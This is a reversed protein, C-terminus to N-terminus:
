IKVGIDALFEILLRPPLKGSCITELAPIYKSAFQNNCQGFNDNLDATIIDGLPEGNYYEIRNLTALNGNLLKFFSIASKEVKREKEELTDAMSLNAAYVARLLALANVCVEKVDVPLEVQSEFVDVDCEEALRNKLRNRVKGKVYEKAAAPFSKLSKLIQDFEDEILKIETWRQVAEQVTFTIGGFVATDAMLSSDLVEDVSNHGQM